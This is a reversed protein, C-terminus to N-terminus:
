VKVKVEWLTINRYQFNTGFKMFFPRTSNSYDSDDYGDFLCVFLGTPSQIEAGIAWIENVWLSHSVWHGVSKYAIKPLLNQANSKAPRFLFDFFLTKYLPWPSSVALFPEIGDLFLFLLLLKFNTRSLCVSLCVSLTLSLFYCLGLSPASILLCVRCYKTIM